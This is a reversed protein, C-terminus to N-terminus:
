GLTSCTARGPRRPRAGSIHWIRACKMTRPCSWSGLLRRSWETLAPWPEPSNVGASGRMSPSRRLRAM